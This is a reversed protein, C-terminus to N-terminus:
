AEPVAPLHVDFAAAAVSRIAAVADRRSRVYATWRDGDGMGYDSGPILRDAANAAAAFAERRVEADHAEIMAITAPDYNPGSIKEALEAARGHQRIV